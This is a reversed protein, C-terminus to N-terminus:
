SLPSVPPPSMCAAWGMTTSIYAGKPTPAIAPNQSLTVQCNNGVGLTVLVMTGLFEAAPERIIERYACTLRWRCRLVPCAYRIRSWRNPYRTIFEGAPMPAPPEQLYQRCRLTLAMYPLSSDM